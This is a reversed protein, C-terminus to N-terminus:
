KLKKKRASSEKQRHRNATKGTQTTTRSSSGKSQRKTKDNARSKASSNRHPRSKGSHNSKNRPHRAKKGTSGTSATKKTRRNEPSNRKSEPQAESSSGSIAANLQSMEEHGLNRWQGPKLRGLQIHMIRIRTLRRVEYGLYECMRRIQRNLGQTLVIKFTTKNQITVKCPRTVTGLIPIGNSMKDAFSSDLPKDVTVLYEKDHANEARLIKNVIDGDSTLLILGDSPKDLRGVPFIRQDHDIASIINNRVNQETTCTIGVPKNYALYVRDSKNAPSAAIEMGDVTVSDGPEVKVGLEPMKGNIRVRRAEILRDAERRSCYGSDSIYKNLRIASDSNSPHNM